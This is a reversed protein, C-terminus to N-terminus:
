INRVPVGSQAHCVENKQRKIRGPLLSNVMKTAQKSQLTLGTFTARTKGDILCDFYKFNPYGGRCHESPGLVLIYSGENAEYNEVSIMIQSKRVRLLDGSEPPFSRLDYFVWDYYIIKKM